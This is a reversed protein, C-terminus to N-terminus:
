MGASAVTDMKQVLGRKRILRQIQELAAPDADEAMSTELLVLELDRMVAALANLGREEAALRYLRTDNLLSAALEREYAWDGTASEGPERDALGLVVLKSREFHSHGAAKLGSTAVAADGAGAPASAIRPQWEPQGPQQRAVYVVSMTVLAFLAATALLGIYARVSTTRQPFAAVKPAAAQSSRREIRTAADLRTMFATWDGGAPADVGPRGALATRIAALDEVAAACLPCQRLHAAVRAREAPELEDYFFLEVTGSDHVICRPSM